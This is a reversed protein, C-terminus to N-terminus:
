SGNDTLFTLLPSSGKVFGPRGAVSIILAEGFETFGKQKKHTKLVVFELLYANVKQVIVV